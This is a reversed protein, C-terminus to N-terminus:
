CDSAVAVSEKAAVVREPVDVYVKQVSRCLNLLEDVMGLMDIVDGDGSSVNKLNCAVSEIESIGGCAATKELRAALAKIGASDQQDVAEALREIQLGVQLAIQKSGIPLVTSEYDAVVQIFREVLVPDFQVGACRRLEEFAKEQTRGKRYVRDSVMADYADAIMVIRAGVPIDEGRPLHPADPRGQFTSHHCRIIEVLNRNSFSAEVIEVGIRDHLEMIEWEESTLPGPKLLIADPVGIKGIDHLLAAVELEYTERLSLLGVATAVSLEAVRTCHSATQADRYALASLLSAVAPYPISQDTSNEASTVDKADSAAPLSDFDVTDDESVDGWSVVQNRGGRKAVYLCKDAQELLEEPDNAGWCISSLGLSATVSLQPFELSEIASRIREALVLTDAPGTQPAMICFEEGGYRCVLDSDRASEEIAQAARRLVEDGVAHGHTDNVSKFHDLDVMLCTLPQTKRKALNWQKDFLEFFTRRNVCGTLSDRTALYQLEENRKKLEDRSSNLELLMASLQERKKEIPTIDDFSAITGRRKGENSLIPSTNVLYTRREGDGSLTLRMGEADDESLWQPKPVGDAENQWGLSDISRGLLENDLRAVQKRFRENVLVIRLENDLVVVGESFTDLTARVHMPVSRSPDLFKFARHLFWRFFFGNVVLTLAGLIVIPHRVVSLFGFPQPAFAIELHAWLQDGSRIPVRINELNSSAGPNLEWAREHDGSQFLITGDSGRLCTSVIESHRNAIAEMNRPILEPRNNRVMLSSTIALSECLASKQLLESDRPNPLLNLPYALTLTFTSLLVLKSAMRSAVSISKKSGFRM